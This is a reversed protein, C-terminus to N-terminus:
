GLSPSPPKSVPVPREQTAGTEVAYSGDPRRTVNQDGAKVLRADNADLWRFLNVIIEHRTGGHIARAPVPEAKPTFAESGHARFMREMRELERGTKALGEAVIRDAVVVRSRFEFPIECVTVTTTTKNPAAVFDSLASCGRVADALARQNPTLPGDPIPENHLATRHRNPSYRM